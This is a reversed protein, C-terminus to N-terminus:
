RRPGPAPASRPARSGPGSACRPPGHRPSAGPPRRPWRPATAPRPPPPASLAPPAPSPGPVAGCGSRGPTELCVRGPEPWALGPGRPDARAGEPWAKPLRQPPHGPRLLYTGAPADDAVECPPPAKRELVCTTTVLAGAGGLHAVAEGGPYRVLELLPRGGALVLLAPHGEGASVVALLGGPGAEVSDVLHFTAPPCPRTRWGALTDVALSACRPPELGVPEQQLVALTRADEWWVLARDQAPAPPLPLRRVPGKLPGVQLAGRVVAAQRRGDPSLVVGEPLPEPLAEWRGTAPHWVLRRDVLLGSGDPLFDLTPRPPAAAGAVAALGLAAALAM